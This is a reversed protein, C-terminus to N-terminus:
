GINLHHMTPIFAETEDVLNLKIGSKRLSPTVESEHMDHDVRRLAVGSTLRRHHVLEHLDLKFYFV